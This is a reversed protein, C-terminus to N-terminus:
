RLRFGMGGQAAFGLGYLRDKEGGSSVAASPPQANGGAATASTTTTGADANMGQSSIARLFEGMVDFNFSTMDRLSQQASTLSGVPSSVGTTIQTPSIGSGSSGPVIGAGRGNIVNHADSVVTMPKGTYSPLNPILQRPDIYKGDTDRIELHLHPGETQGTMGVTGLITGKSVEQDKKVLVNGLHAYVSQRGDSHQVVIYNGYSDNYGVELIRGAAISKVHSGLPAAIDVGKHVHTSRQEGYEGKVAGELPTAYGSMSPTASPAAGQVPTSPSGFSRFFSSTDGAVPGSLISSDGLLSGPQALPTERPKKLNNALLDGGVGVGVGAAVGGVPTVFPSALITTGIAAGFSTLRLAAAAYDGDQIDDAIQKAVLGTGLFGLLKGGWKLTNTVAPSETFGKITAATDALAAKTADAARSVVGLTRDVVGPQPAPYFPSRAEGPIVPLGPPPRPIKEIPDPILIGGPSMKYGTPVNAAPPVSSPPAVTPPLRFYPEAPTPRLGPAAAAGATSAGPINSAPPMGASPVSPSSPFLRQYTKFGLYGTAAAGAAGALLSTEYPYEGGLLYGLGGGVLGLKTGGLKLGLGGGLAAGSLEGLDRNINLGLRDQAFQGVSSQPTGANPQGPSFDFARKIKEQLTPIGEKIGLEVAGKIAEGLTTGVTKAIDIVTNAIQKKADAYFEDADKYGFHKLFEKLFEQVHERNAYLLGAVAGATVIGPLAGIISGIVSGDKGSDEKSVANPQQGTLQTTSLPSAMKMRAALGKEKDPQGAIAKMLQLQKLNINQIDKLVASINGLQRNATTLADATQQTSRKIAVSHEEQQKAQQAAQKEANRQSQYNSVTSRILPGLGLGLGYISQRPDFQRMASEKAQKIPATATRATAKSLAEVLSAM